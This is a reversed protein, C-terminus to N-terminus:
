GMARALHKTPDRMVIEALSLAEFLVTNRPEPDYFKRRELRWPLLDPYREVFDDAEEYKNRFLNERAVTVDLIHQNTAAVKAIAGIVQKTNEGKRVACHLKETVVVNPRFEDNLKLAYEAANIANKGAKTSMDWYVLEGDQFFVIGVRRYAGAFALLSHQAM